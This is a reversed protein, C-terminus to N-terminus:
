SAPRRWALEAQSRLVGARMVHTLTRFAAVDENPDGELVILDAIKGKEITGFDDLRGMAIAGNRTSMTVIEEAPIGAGQMAEMENYMSPGHLTLPNGADTATAM